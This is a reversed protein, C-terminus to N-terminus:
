NTNAALCTHWGDAHTKERGSQSLSISCVKLESQELKHPPKGLERRKREVATMCGGLNTPKPCSYQIQLLLYTSYWRWWAPVEADM